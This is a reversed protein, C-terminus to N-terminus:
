LVAYRDILTWTVILAVWAVSTWTIARTRVTGARSTAARKEADLRADFRQKESALREEIRSANERKLQAVTASRDAEGHEFGMKAGDAWAKRAVLLRTVRFDRSSMGQLKALERKAEKPISGMAIADAHANVVQERFPHDIKQTSAM